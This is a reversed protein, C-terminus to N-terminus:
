AHSKAFIGGLALGLSVLASVWEMPTVPVKAGIQTVWTGLAALALPVTTKWDKLGEVM